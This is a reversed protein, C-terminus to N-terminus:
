HCSHDSSYYADNNSTRGLAVSDEFCSNNVLLLTYPHDLLYQRGTRKRRDVFIDITYDSNASVPCPVCGGRLREAKGGDALTNDRVNMGQVSKPQVGIVGSSSSNTHAVPPYSVPTSTSM